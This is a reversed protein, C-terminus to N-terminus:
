NALREEDDDCRDGKRERDAKAEATLPPGGLKDLPPGATAVVPFGRALPHHLRHESSRQPPMAGGAEIFGIVSTQGPRGYGHPAWQSPAPTLKASNESCPSATSRQMKSAIPRRSSCRM